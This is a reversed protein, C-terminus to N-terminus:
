QHQTITLYIFPCRYWHYGTLNETKSIGYDPVSRKVWFSEEVSEDRWDLNDGKRFMWDTKLIVPKEFSSIMTGCPEAVLSVFTPSLFMTFGIILQSIRTKSIM